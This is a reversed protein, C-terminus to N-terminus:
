NPRRCKVLWVATSSYEPGRLDTLEFNLTVDGPVFYDTINQAPLIKIEGKKEEDFNIKLPNPKNPPAPSVTARIEDDVQIDDLTLAKSSFWIVQNNSIALKLTKRWFVHEVV